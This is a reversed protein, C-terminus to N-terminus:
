PTGREEIIDRRRGDSKLEDEIRRMTYRKTM